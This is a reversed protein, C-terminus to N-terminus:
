GGGRIFVKSKWEVLLVPFRRGGVGDGARYVAGVSLPVGHLRCFENPAGPGIGSVPDVRDFAAAVADDLLEASARRASGFGKGNELHELPDKSRQVRVEGHLPAALLWM